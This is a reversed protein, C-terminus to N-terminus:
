QTRTGRASTSLARCRQLPTRTDTFDIALASSEALASARGAVGLSYHIAPADHGDHGADHDLAVDSAGRRQDPM